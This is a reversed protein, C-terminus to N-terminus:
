PGGVQSQLLFHIYILDGGADGAVQANQIVLNTKMNVTLTSAAGSITAQTSNYWDTRAPVIPNFYTITASNNPNMEVPLCAMASGGTTLGPMQAIYGIAGTYGNGAACALGQPFTKYVYRRLLALEIPYPMYEFATATNGIEWQVGALYLTAAANAVLSVSGTAKWFSGSQWANLTSTSVNSGSGTDWVIKLGFLGIDTVWTGSTPGTVTVTYKKWTNAATVIYTSVYSFDAAQNLFSISYTGTISAQAWFSLTAVVAGSTGYFFDRMYPGEVPYEMNCGDAAAPSGSTNTTMKLSKSFGTPATTSQAVTFNPTGTAEARYQDLTYHAATGVTYTGGEKNQDFLMERNLIRSRGLGTFSNNLSTTVINDAVINTWKRNGSDHDNWWQRIAQIDANYKDSILDKIDKLGIWSPFQM